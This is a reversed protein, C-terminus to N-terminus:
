PKVELIKGTLIDYEDSSVCMFLSAEPNDKIPIVEEEDHGIYRYLADETPNILWIEVASKEKAHSCAVTSILLLIAVSVLRIKLM